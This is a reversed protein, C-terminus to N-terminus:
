TKGSQLEELVTRECITMAEDFGAADLGYNDYTYKMLSYFDEGTDMSTEVEESLLWRVLRKVRPDSAADHMYNFNVIQQFETGWDREAM